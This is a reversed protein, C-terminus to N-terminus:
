AEQTGWVCGHLLQRQVVAFVDCCLMACCLVACYLVACCLVHRRPVACSLWPVACCLVACRLVACCLVACCLAACSPLAMTSVKLFQVAAALTDKKNLMVRGHLVGELMVRGSVSAETTDRQEATSCCAPPSLLEVVLPQQMDSVLTSSSAVTGQISGVSQQIRRSEASIAAEVHFILQQTNDLVPLDIM